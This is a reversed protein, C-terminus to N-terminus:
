GCRRCHRPVQASRLARACSLTVNMAYRECCYYSALSAWPLRRVSQQTYVVYGQSDVLIMTREGGSPSAWTLTVPVITKTQSVSRASTEICAVAEPIASTPYLRWDGAEDKRLEFSTGGLFQLTTSKGCGTYGWLLAVPKGAIGSAGRVVEHLLRVLEVLDMPEAIAQLASVCQQAERRPTCANTLAALLKRAEAHLRGIGALDDQLASCWSQFQPSQTPLGSSIYHKINGLLSLPQTPPPYGQCFFCVLLALM